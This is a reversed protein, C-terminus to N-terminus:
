ISRFVFAGDFDRGEDSTKLKKDGIFPSYDVTLNQTRSSASLEAITTAGYIQGIQDSVGNEKIERYSQCDAQFASLQGETIGFSVGDLDFYVMPESLSVGGVGTSLLAKSTRIMDYDSPFFSITRDGFAACAGAVGFLNKFDGSSGSSGTMGVYFMERTINTEQQYGVVRKLNTLNAGRATIGIVEGLFPHRATSNGTLGPTANTVGENYGKIYGGSSSFSSLTSGYNSILLVRRDDDYGAVNATRELIPHGDETFLECSDPGNMNFLLKTYTTGTNGGTPLSFTAGTAATAGTPGGMFDILGDHPSGYPAFLVEVEDLWGEFPLSGDSKAGMVFPADDNYVFVEESGGITQTATMTGNIFIRAEKYPAIEVQIHNWDSLSALISSVFTNDLDSGSANSSYSFTLTRPAHTFKLEYVGTGDANAQSVLVMNKTPTGSSFKVWLSLRFYVSSGTEVPTFDDQYEIQLSSGTNGTIPFRASSGGFKYNTTDHRAANSTVTSLDPDNNIVPYRSQRINESYSYIGCGEVSASAGYVSGSLEQLRIMHFGDGTAASFGYSFSASTAGGSLTSGLIKETRVQGASFSRFKYIGDMLDINTGLIQFNDGRTLKLDDFERPYNFDFYVTAGAGYYFGDLTQGYNHQGGLIIKGVTESTQQIRQPITHRTPGVIDGDHSRKKKTQLTNPINQKMISDSTDSFSALKIGNPIVSLNETSDLPRLVNDTTYPINEKVNGADDYILIRKEDSM